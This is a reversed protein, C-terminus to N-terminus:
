APHRLLWARAAQTVGKGWVGIGAHKIMLQGNQLYTGNVFKNGEKLKLIKDGFNQRLNSYLRLAREPSLNHNKGGFSDNLEQTLGHGPEVTFTRSAEAASHLDSSPHIPSQVVDAHHLGLSSPALTTKHTLSITAPAQIMSDRAKHVPAVSPDLPNSDYQSTLGFHMHPIWGKSEAIRTMILATAGLATILGAQRRATKREPDKMVDITKLIVNNASDLARNKAYRATHKIGGAAARSLGGLASKAASFRIKKVEPEYSSVDELYSVVKPSAPKEEQNVAENVSDTIWIGDENPRANPFRAPVLTLQPAHEVESQTEPKYFEPTFDTPMVRRTANLKDVHEKFGATSFVLVFGDEGVVEQVENQEGFTRDIELSASM